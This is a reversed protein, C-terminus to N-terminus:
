KKSIKNNFFINQFFFNNFFIQIKQKNKLLKKPQYINQQNKKQICEVNPHLNIHTLPYNRLLEGGRGVQKAPNYQRSLTLIYLYYFIHM